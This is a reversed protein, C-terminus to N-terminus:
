NQNQEPTTSQAIRFDLVYEYETRKPLRTGEWSDDTTEQAELTRRDRLYETLFFEGERRTVLLPVTQETLIGTYNNQTNM